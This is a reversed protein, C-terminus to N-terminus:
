RTSSRLYRDIRPTLSVSVATRRRHDCGRARPGLTSSWWENTATAGSSRQVWISSV